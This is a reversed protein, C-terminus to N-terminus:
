NEHYLVGQPECQLPITELSTNIPSHSLAVVCDGLGAGSIKAGLVLPNRRLEHVLSELVGDSTGLTAQLGHHWNMLMGVQEWQQTLCAERAFSVTEKMLAYLDKYLSDMNYLSNRNKGQAKIKEIVLATKTKYGSYCVTLEPWLPLPEVHFPDMEYYVVGGYVSAMVDTGSGLGKQQSQILSRALLALEREHFDIGLWQHLAGLTAVTVAASSGFGVTPLCESIVECDCGSPLQKKYHQLAALLFEYPASASLTNRSTEYPPFFSSTVFISDDKRPTLKVTLRKSVATAIAGTGHLVGHEGFLMLSGPASATYSTKM